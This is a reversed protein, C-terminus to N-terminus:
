WLGWFRTRRALNEVGSKSVPIPIETNKIKFEGSGNRIEVVNGTAAKDIALPTQAVVIMPWFHNELASVAPEGLRMVAEIDAEDLVRPSGRGGLL